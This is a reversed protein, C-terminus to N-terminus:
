GTPTEQLKEAEAVLHRLRFRLLRRGLLGLLALVLEGRPIDKHGEEAHHQDLRQPQLERLNCRNGIALELLEERLVLDRFDQDSGFGDLALQFLRKGVPPLLEVRDADIGPQGVLQLFVADGDRARRGATKERRYQGPNQWDEDEVQDPSIADAAHRLALPEAAQHRDSFRAGLDIDLGVGLYREPVYGADVLRFVLQLLDDGEKAIRVREATHAGSDRLAYQQDPRRAGSLRQQRAGHGALRAHGIKRDRAGLEDLHEDADAGRADTVQELLRPLRCGADDENVLE